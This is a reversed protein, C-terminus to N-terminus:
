HSLRNEAAAASAFPVAAIWLAAATTALGLRTTVKGFLKEQSTLM